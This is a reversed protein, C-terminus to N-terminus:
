VCGGDRFASGALFALITTAARRYIGEDVGVCRDFQGSVCSGAVELGRVGRGRGRGRWDGVEWRVGVCHLDSQDDYEAQDAQADSRWRSTGARILTLM